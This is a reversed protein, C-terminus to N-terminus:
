IIRRGGLAGSEGSVVSKRDEWRALRHGAEVYLTLDRVSQIKVAVLRDAMILLLAREIHRGAYRLAPMHDDGFLSAKARRLRYCAIPFYFGKTGEWRLM